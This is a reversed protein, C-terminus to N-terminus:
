FSNTLQYKFFYLICKNQKMNKKTQKKNKKVACHLKHSRVEGVLPQVQAWRYVGLGLWQVSLADGDRMNEKRTM